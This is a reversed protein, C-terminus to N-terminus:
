VIITMYSNQLETIKIKKIKEEKAKNRNPQVLFSTTTGPDRWNQNERNEAEKAEHRNPWVLFLTM